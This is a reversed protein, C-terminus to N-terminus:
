LVKSRATRADKKKRIPNANLITGELGKGFCISRLENSLM